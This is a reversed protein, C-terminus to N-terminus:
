THIQYKGKRLNEPEYHDKHFIIGGNMDRKGNTMAYWYFSYPVYDTCLYLTEFDWNNLSMIQKIFRRKLLPNTVVERLREPCEVQMKTRRKVEPKDLTKWETKNDDYYFMAFKEYDIAFREIEGMLKNGSSNLWAIEFVLIWLGSSDSTKYIRIYSYIDKDMIVEEEGNMLKDLKETIILFNNSRGSYRFSANDKAITQISTTHERKGFRIMKRM